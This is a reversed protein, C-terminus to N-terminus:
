KRIERKYGYQKNKKHNEKDYETVMGYQRPHFKPKVTIVVNNKVVLVLDYDELLYEEDLPNWVASIRILKEIGVYDSPKYPKNKNLMRELGRLLSHQSFSIDEDMLYYELSNVRSLIMVQM